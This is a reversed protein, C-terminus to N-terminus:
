RTLLLVANQGGFGSAHCAVARCPLPRPARHVLDLDIAPDLRDLNATPPATRHQLALVAHAAQIAGAAGLTHGIVSKGATVPPADRYARRIARAEALDGLPTGTGHAHILGIDAPRLGAGALAARTARLLGDGDPHPTTPHHGDAAAAYGALHARVPARRARAHGARELVLVAAGEGLVFGDRDADFPRSAGAPDHHRTSLVRMRHFGDVTAPDRAACAGGALVLDCDGATLLHRALGLADTGSACAAAVTHVPGLAGLDLSIEAAAMNPLSRPFMTPSVAGHRGDLIRRFAEDLHQQSSAAVGLVVGVRTADWDAPDLAADAVAQRAAAVALHIFRDTRRATRFGLVREADFGDPGAPGALGALGAPGHADAPGDSDAPGDPGAADGEFGPVACSFGVPLGALLPDAAATSTGALLRAWNATAGVGAPTLLGLGTVAVPEARRM